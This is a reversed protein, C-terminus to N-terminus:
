QRFIDNGEEAINAFINASSNTFQCNEELYVGGGFANATNETIIGSQIRCINGSTLYIGGGLFTVSNKSITINQLTISNIENNNNKFVSLFIGGGRKAKNGSIICNNITSSTGYMGIIIGGGDEKAINNLVSGSNIIINNCQIGGGSYNSSNNSIEGDKMEIKGWYGIGGGNYGASNNRIIGKNIILIYRSASWGAIGGGMVNAKNASIIGGNMTFNAYHVCVGGGDGVSQNNTIEGNNLIFNGGSEINIGGGGGDLHLIARNNRIIGGEMICTGGKVNIGGGERATNNEIIVGDGIILKSNEGVFIGGGKGSYGTDNGGSIIINELRINSNGNIRMGGRTLISNQNNGKLIIEISGSNKIDVKENVTGILIITKIQGASSMIFAKELTKFATLESRGNNNDDGSSKVFYARPTDQAFIINSVLLAIFTFIIYKKDM